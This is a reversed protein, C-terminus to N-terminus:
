FIERDSLPISRKERIGRSTLSKEKVKTILISLKLDFEKFLETDPFVRIIFPKMGEAFSMFDCYKLGTVFLQGQVQYRYEAPLKNAEIYEFHTSQNPCKIEIMGEDAMGDPSIGIWDHYPHDEDPTVFGVQKVEVGFISEYEKRAVPELEIGREMAANSYTEEARGTIIECAIDTILDQYSATNEKSMLNKFRTGTVRGLRAQHWAESQQECNFIIM